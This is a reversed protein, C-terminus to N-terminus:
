LRRAAAEVARDCWMALDDSASMGSGITRARRPTSARAGAACCRARRDLGPRAQVDWDGITAALGRPPLIGHRAPDREMPPGVSPGDLWSGGITLSAGAARMAADRYRALVDDPGTPLSATNAVLLWGLEVAVPALMMM